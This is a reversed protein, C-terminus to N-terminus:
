SMDDEEWINILLSHFMELTVPGAAKYIEAPIIDMGLAKNSSSQNIGKGVEEMTPPLDLSNITSKQSIQDLVAPCVISPRNLLGSFHERWQDSISKKKKLLTMSDASLSILLAHSSLDMYQRLHVLSCKPTTKKTDVCHEVEEAKREWWEHEMKHLTTQMKNHICKFCDHKSTSSRDNQRALYAKQKHETFNTISEDNASFWDQHARKKLGLTSEASERVLIM